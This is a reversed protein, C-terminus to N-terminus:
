GEDSQFLDAIASTEEERLPNTIAYMVIQAAEMDGTTQFLTYRIFDVRRGIKGPRPKRGNDKLWQPFVWAKPPVSVFEEASVPRKWEVIGYDWTYDTQMQARLVKLEDRQRVWEEYEPQGARAPLWKETVGSVKVLPIPPDVLDPNGAMVDAVLMPPISRVRVVATGSPLVFERTTSGDLLGM